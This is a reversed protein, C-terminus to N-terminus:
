FVYESTGLYIYIGEGYLTDISTSTNFILEELWYLYFSVFQLFIKKVEKKDM